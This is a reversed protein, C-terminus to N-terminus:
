ARPIPLAAIAPWLPASEVRRWLAVQVWRHAVQRRVKVAPWDKTKEIEVDLQKAHIDKSLDFKLQEMKPEISRPSNYVLEQTNLLDWFPQLYDKSMRAISFYERIIEGYETNLKITEDLKAIEAECGKRKEVLQEIVEIIKNYVSPSYGPMWKHKCKPCETQEGKVIDDLHSKQHRLKELNSDIEQVRNLVTAKNQVAAALNAQSYHRQANEPISSFVRQLDHWLAELTSLAGHVDTFELGLRREALVATRAQTLDKLQTQLTQLGAAGTKLCADHAEKLQTHEKVLLEIKGSTSAIEERVNQIDQRIEDPHLFKVHPAQLNFLRETLAMCEQELRLQINELEYVPENRETRSRYLLDVEAVLQTIQENIKNVDGENVIMATEAVLRKKALKCAGNIDRATDKTKVYVSLAYDYSTDCLETFWERRRSPSMETFREVGTIMDHVEQRVNFFKKVLDRQFTLTGGPNLEETGNRIFSHVHGSSFDTTLLYEEGRHVIEIAKSGDKTFNAALAPLPSLEAMLSSKGSGNTGLILQNRETPVMKFRKIDNLAFRKYGVLEISKIRM